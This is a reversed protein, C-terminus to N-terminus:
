QAFLATETIGALYPKGTAEDLAERSDSDYAHLMGYGGALELGVDRALRVINSMSLKAINPLGPIDQGAAMAAKLRLNNFRAIEGLSHLQVLRQRLVPEHNRGNAQALKILASASTGLSIGGSRRGGTAIFDGARKDLD